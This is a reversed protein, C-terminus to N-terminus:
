APDSGRGLALVRIVMEKRGASATAWLQLRGAVGVVDVSARDGLALDARRSIARRAMVLIQAPDSGKGLALFRIVMGKHGAGATAWLQLPGGRGGRGGFGPGGLGPGSRPFNDQPGYGPSVGPGFGQRPGPVSYANGQLGRQSNGMAPPQGGHGGRGGFGKTGLASTREAPFQGAPWLWFERRTRVRASPWSGIVMEKRGASATAWLQLRGAVGVVDVLVRDGLALDAGAPFQGAPWLWFERRTRVKASPWSGFLWKRAARAPQQGYSSATVAVGVVDAWVWDGLALDAGRSIARRAMVLIRAPDSGKGLALLRIVMEKRGASATAWLQLRGAVGVVDVLVRDGLALDAGRSIARRAMVLIRAPDSGKGLALFRIVM